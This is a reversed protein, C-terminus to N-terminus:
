LEKVAVSGNRGTAPAVNLPEPQSDSDDAAAQWLRQPEPPYTRQTLDAIEAELAQLKRTRKEFKARSKEVKKIFELHKSRARRLAKALNRQETNEAAM